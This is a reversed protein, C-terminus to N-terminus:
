NHNEVFNSIKTQLESSVKVLPLRVYPQCLRLHHLMSKIGVPNGEKFILQVAPLLGKLLDFAEKTKYNLGLKIMESYEGPIGQALVSIVGAGGATVLSLALSDEGSIIMFDDPKGNLLLLIQDFNGAAEKIGIINDFDKALRFVTEPEMNTGTRYPINYMIIPLPSALALHKYHQYIGEQTPRNYYPSVSLIASFPRLDLENLQNVLSQTNNGGLGLVLPLRGNNVKVVHTIIQDQEQKTLTPTEATTGLLVLYDIGNKIQYEIIQTLAGFDIELNKDFPTVLAVGTGFLEKM